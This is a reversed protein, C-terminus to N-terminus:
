EKRMIVVKNALDSLYPIRRVLKYLPNYLSMIELLSHDAVHVYNTLKGVLCEGSEVGFKYRKYWKKGSKDIFCKTALPSMIEVLLTAKYFTKEIIKFLTLVEEENLHMTVDEIIILLPEGIYPIQEAWAEDTISAAVQFIPPVEEPLLLARADIIEKADINYWKRYSGERRYCRTDLGCGINIVMARPRKELFIRVMNDLMIARALVDLKMEMGADSVRFVHKWNEVLEVAKPDEFLVNGNQTEKAREYVDRRMAKPVESLIPNKKRM